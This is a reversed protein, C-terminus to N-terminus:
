FAGYKSQKFSQIAAAFGSDRLASIQFYPIPPARNREARGKELEVLFRIPSRFQDSHLRKVGMSSSMVLKVLSGSRPLSGINSDVASTPSYGIKEKRLSNMRRGTFTVDRSEGAANTVRFTQSVSHGEGGNGIIIGGLGAFFYPASHVSPWFSDLPLRLLFDGTLVGAAVSNGGGNVTVPAFGQVLTVEHSQAGNGSIDLGAGQFRVGAYKWPFWYTLDIGDGWGLLEDAVNGVGTAYTGFVGIDFENPRFFETPPPPPPAIVQKSSVM